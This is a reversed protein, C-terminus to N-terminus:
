AAHVLGARALVLVDVHARHLVCEVGLACLDEPEVPALVDRVLLDHLLDVGELLLGQLHVNAVEQTSQM